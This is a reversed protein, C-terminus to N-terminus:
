LGASLLPFGPATYPSFSGRVFPMSIGMQVDMARLGQTKFGMCSCEHPM